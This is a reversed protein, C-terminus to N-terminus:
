GGTKVWFVFPRSACGRYLMAVIVKVGLRAQDAEPVEFRQLDPLHLHSACDLRPKVEKM